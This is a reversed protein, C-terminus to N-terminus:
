CMSTVWYYAAFLVMFFMVFRLIRPAKRSGKKTTVQGLSEKNFVTDGDDERSEKFVTVDCRVRFSDNKLYPSAELEAREIFKEFGWSPIACSFTEIGSVPTYGPVPKGAQDLLSFVYRANVQVDPSPDDLFLDFSIWDVGDETYGDPFYGIFWRHGGVSFVSSNISEGVGYSGKTKSYKKIKMIHYGMATEASITSASGGATAANSYAAM